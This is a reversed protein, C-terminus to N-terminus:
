KLNVWNMPDEQNSFYPGDGQYECPEKDRAESAIFVEEKTSIGKEQYKAFVEESMHNFISDLDAFPSNWNDITKPKLAPKAYVIDFSAREETPIAAHGIVDGVKVESGRRLNDGVIIHQVSFAWIGFPPLMPLARKPVIWVEGELGEQPDSRISSIYGDYPSYIKVKDTGVLEPKVFFYHKMNRKSEREDQPVTVHGACSRYKSIRTIENLDVFNAVLEPPPINKASIISVIVIAILITILVGVGILIKRLM